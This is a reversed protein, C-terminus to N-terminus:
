PTAQAVRGQDTLFCVCMQDRSLLLLADGSPHWALRNVSFSTAETPVEVSLCGAPSWMYVKNNGTCLALRPQKPDWEICKISSDQLLLVEQGLRQVNWIWVATPMNDNKSYLYRSDVSFAMSGIGLKPNAKNPEPQVTPVPVTGEVVEYKSQVGYHLLTGNMESDGSMLPPKKVVETYVIVESSKLTVPHSHEVITKWTIHNLLRIKQDYSGIALFQSTPSWAVSKIGLAWDYASYTALCRGDVSYLLMKYQLCCEWVCLVRGDPSWEIGALDTTDTEFHKVLQWTNCVFISVFDKCDRREALALYKGGQSFDVGKQCPKPYRIYSVSKNVLSWVTVRLHFDATTLIHRGDPSWRVEILGASGEDIKCTWETEEISWVQVLGRKYMGCLIFLSDASWEIYQIADLCTYLQLIQLTNVERIILRYQVANALYKGDPSFRCLHGSQKFLESFNM